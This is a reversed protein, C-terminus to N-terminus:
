MGTELRVQPDDNGKINYNMIPYAAILFVIFFGLTGILIAM